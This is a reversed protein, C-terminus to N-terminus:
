LRHRAHVSRRIENVLPLALSHASNLFAIFLDTLFHRLLYLCLLLLLFRCIGSGRAVPFAILLDSTFNGLFMTDGQLRNRRLSGRHLFQRILRVQLVPVIHVRLFVLLSDPLVIRLM